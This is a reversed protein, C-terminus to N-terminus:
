EDVLTLAKALVESSIRFGVAQLKAYEERASAIHGQQKALAIVGVTGRVSMGLIAAAKRAARDDLIAEFGPNKALWSMVHSEGAGLDWNAVASDITDVSKIYPSGENRTWAVAPDDYGGNQIEDIVGQPIVLQDCLQILLNVRSIKTLTIIPSANVAWCRTM